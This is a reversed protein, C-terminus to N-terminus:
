HSSCRGRRGAEAQDLESTLFPVQTGAPRSPVTFIAPQPGGRGRIVGGTGEENDGAQKSVKCGHSCRWRAARATRGGPHPPPRQGRRPEASGQRTEAAVAQREKPLPRTRALLDTQALGVQREQLVGVPDKTQWCRGPSLMQATEPISGPPLSLWDQIGRGLSGLLAVESIRM